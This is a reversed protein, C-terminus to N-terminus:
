SVTEKRNNSNTDKPVVIVWRYDTLSENVVIYFRTDRSFVPIGDTIDKIELRDNDDVEISFKGAGDYLDDTIEFWRGGQGCTAFALANLTEDFMEEDIYENFEDLYVSFRAYEYHPCGM